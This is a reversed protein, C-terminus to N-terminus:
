EDIGFALIDTNDPNSLRIIQAEIDWYKAHKVITDWQMQPVYDVIRAFKSRLASNAAVAAVAACTRFNHGFPPQKYPAYAQQKQRLAKIKAVPSSNAVADLLQRRKAETNM